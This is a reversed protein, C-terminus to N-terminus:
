IKGCQSCRSCTVDKRATHSASLSSQARRAAASQDPGSLYHSRRAVAFPRSIARLTTTKGAGNAGILTVLEGENVDLSVDHLAPVRGYCVSIGEVHLM